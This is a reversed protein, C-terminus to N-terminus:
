QRISYINGDKGQYELQLPLAKVFKDETPLYWRWTVTSFYILYGERKIMDNVMANIDKIINKNPERTSTSTHRPIMRSKVDTYLSLPGPGNTYVVTDIKNANLWAIVDSEVWSKNAFDIGDKAFEVYRNQVRLQFFAITILYIMLTIGVLKLREFTFYRHALLILALFICYYAPALIRRDFPIDAYVFSKSFLIFALYIIAFVLCIEVMSNKPKLRNLLASIGWLTSIGFFPILLLLPKIGPLLFWFLIERTGKQFSKLPIENYHLSFTSGSNGHSHSIIMWIILPSISVLFFLISNIIRKAWSEKALLILCFCGTMVLSVGAYRTVVALGISIAALLLLLRNNENKLYAALSFLGTLAFFLFLPESWVMGHIELWMQSSTIILIGVLTAIKSKETVAYIVSGFLVTNVVLLIAQFLKASHLINDGFFSCIALTISYFPPWHNGLASFNHNKSISKAYKIYNISDSTLGAGWTTTNLLQLYIYTIAAISTCLFAFTLLSNRTPNM